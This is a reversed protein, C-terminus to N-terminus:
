EIMKLRTADILFIAHRGDCDDFTVIPDADNDFACLFGTMGLIIDITKEKASLFNSQVTFRAPFQLRSITTLPLWRGATREDTREDPGIVRVQGAYQDYGFRVISVLKGNAIVWDDLELKYSQNNHVEVESVNTTAGVASTQMM